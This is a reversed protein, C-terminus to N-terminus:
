LEARVSRLAEGARGAADWAASTLAGGSGGAFTALLVDTRALTLRTAAEYTDSSELAMALATALAMWASVWALWRTTVGGWRGGRRHRLRHM